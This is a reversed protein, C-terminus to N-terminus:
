HCSWEGKPEVDGAFLSPLDARFTTETTHVGRERGIHRVRSLWPSAQWFGDRLFLSEVNVDIGRYNAPDTKGLKAVTEWRAALTPWKHRWTGAGQSNWSRAVRVQRWLNEPPHEGSANGFASYLTTALVVDWHRYTDRLYVACELADPALRIDDSLHLVFDEGVHDGLQFGKEFAQRINAVHGLREPNLTIYNGRGRPLLDLVEKEHQSPDVWAAFFVPESVRGAAVDLSALVESLYDPRNYATLSVIM